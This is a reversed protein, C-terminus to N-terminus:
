VQWGAPCRKSIPCQRCDAHHARCVSQGLRKMLIHLEALDDASWDHLTAMTADYACRTDANPRVFGFRDLIRLIHTDIVFAPMGLTSFNLTSASVKRGVGPLRELWALATGVSHSGLFGLDFDPRSDAVIRLAACLHAAKDQAFTVDAIIAQVEATRARVIDSWAPYAAVLRM